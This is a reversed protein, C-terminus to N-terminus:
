EGEAFRIPEQYLGAPIIAESCADNSPSYEYVWLKRRYEFPLYGPIIEMACIALTQEDIAYDIM